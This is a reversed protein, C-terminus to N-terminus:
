GFYWRLGALLEHQQYDIDLAGPEADLSNQYRYGTFVESQPGVDFNVGAGAQWAFVTDSDDVLNTEADYINAGLGAMIYPEIAMNLDFDYYGNAFISWTQVDGFIVSSDVDAEQYQLELEGRTTVGWERGIAASLNFDDDFDGDLAGANLEADGLFGYGIAGSIYMDQGFEEYQAYATTGPCIVTIAVTALLIRRM